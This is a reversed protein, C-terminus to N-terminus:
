SRPLQMGPLLCASAAKPYTLTHPYISGYPEPPLCGCPVAFIRLGLFMSCLNKSLLPNSSSFLYHPAPCLVLVSPSSAPFRPGLPTFSWSLLSFCTLPQWSDFDSHDALGQLDAWLLRGFTPGPWTVPCCPLTNISSHCQTVCLQAKGRGLLKWTESRFLLWDEFCPQNSDPPHLYIPWRLLNSYPAPFLSYLYLNKERSVGSRSPFDELGM